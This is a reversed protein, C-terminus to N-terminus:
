SDRRSPTTQSQKWLMREFEEEQESLHPTANKGGGGNRAMVSMLKAAALATLPITCVLGLSGTLASAIETAVLDLNLLKTSNINAMLLLLPMASGAYALILTNTMTGMIDRGVNMGKKYLDAQSLSTDTEAVEWVASAISVAVDMIVGLAGILMGAALLGAYFHAPQSLVSGRLIQAEETSLGTLPATIIVLHASLGAIIVGGVTGVTAAMAKRSFGAVLTTTTITVALCIFAATILPSFGRMSLPLLVLGILAIGVVLGVLSKAGQKGGFFLFVALFVALLTALAPVRHYDAINFEPNRNNETVVSLIVERGPTANVNYAPNDTIENPVSVTAGKLAGELIEIQAVQKNSAIGTSQLLSQDMTSATVSKVRGVVFNEEIHKATGATGVSGSTGSTGSSGGSTSSGSTGSSGGSASSGSTGSSGGSTSSGSTGTTAVSKFSGANGPAATAVCVYCLLGLLLAASRLRDTPIRLAKM